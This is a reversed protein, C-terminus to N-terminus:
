FEQLVGFEEVIAKIQEERSLDCFEVKYEFYDDATPPPAPVAEGSESSEVVEEEGEELTLVVEETEGEPNGKRDMQLVRIVVTDRRDVDFSILEKEEGTLGNVVVVAMDARGCFSRNNRGDPTKGLRTSSM